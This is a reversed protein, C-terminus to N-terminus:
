LPSHLCLLQSLHPPQWLWQWGLMQGLHSCLGHWRHKTSLLWGPPFSKGVTPPLSGWFSNRHAPFTFFGWLYQGPVTARQSIWWNWFLVSRKNQLSGKECKTQLIARSTPHYSMCKWTHAMKVRCSAASAYKTLSKSSALRHVMWTFCTVIIGLSM